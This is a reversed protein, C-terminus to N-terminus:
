YGADKLVDMVIGKIKTQDIDPYDGEYYCNSFDYIGEWKADSIAQTIISALLTRAKDAKSESHM